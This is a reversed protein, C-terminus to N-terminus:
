RLHKVFDTPNVRSGNKLVEFHVHPASARGSSGMTAINQGAAVHEGAKVLINENHAYRTVYGNGHEVEVTRGYGSRNAAWIIVGSAVSMVETGRTGAFDLGQHQNREGTFPDNREGFRSSIWGKKVPWGAPTLNADVQRNIMLYQLAQLHSSQRRLKDSLARIAGKLESESVAGSKGAGRDSQEVPGGVPPREDFDFEDLSLQGMQVLRQGLADLRTSAAQLEALRAALANVTLENRNLLADVQRQQQLLDLRFAAIARLGKGDTEVSNQGALYMVSGWAIFALLALPVLAQSLRRKKSGM